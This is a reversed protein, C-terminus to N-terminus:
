GREFPLQAWAGRDAPGRCAHIERRAPLCVICANTTTGQDDEAYRCISDVGDARDSFVRRVSELDQGPVALLANMRALRAFTSSNPEEGQAARLSPDLCHNTHTIARDALRREVATGRQM